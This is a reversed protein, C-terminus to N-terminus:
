KLGAIAAKLEDASVILEYSGRVIGQGDVVFIWPETLLGWDLTAQTAQLANSADLVPQLRGNTYQLKYPEVNIFAIGPEDKAIAKIADLTPGCQKSTCFAPTAFVLVFPKHQALAQDVSLQYFSPDPHTDTSIQRVDGGVEALTPNKSAPARAGVVPTSSADQVQFRVRTTETVGGRTTTFQAGWDGAEPFTVKAVYDGREGQIAWIFTANVTAVPTATDRALDYLAVTATIDPAGIQKNEDQADAFTFLLRSPGCTMQTTIIVPIRTPATAQGTWAAPLNTAPAATPCLAAGPSPPAPSGGPVSPSATVRGSGCGAAVLMAVAVLALTRPSRM